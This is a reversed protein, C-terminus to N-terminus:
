HQGGNACANRSGSGNTHQFQGFVAAAHETVSYVSGLIWDVGNRWRPHCWVTAVLVVASLRCIVLKIM